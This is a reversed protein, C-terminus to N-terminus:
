VLAHIAEWPIVVLRNLVVNTSLHRCVSMSMKASLAMELMDWTARAHTAELRIPVRPLHVAFMHGM